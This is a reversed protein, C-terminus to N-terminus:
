VRHIDEEKCDGYQVEICVLKEHGSNFVRHLQGLPVHFAEGVNYVKIRGNISTLAQGQVVTWHEGRKTHYQMSIAKDVMIELRKVKFRPGQDMICWRGWPREVWIGTEETTTPTM